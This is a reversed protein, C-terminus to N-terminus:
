CLLDECVLRDYNSHTHIPLLLDTSNASVEKKEKDKTLYTNLNLDNTATKFKKRYIAHPMLLVLELWNFTLLELILQVELLIAMELCTTYPNDVASIEKKFASTHVLECM